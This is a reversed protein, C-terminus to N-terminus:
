TKSCVGEAPSPQDASGPGSGVSEEPSEEAEGEVGGECRDEGCCDDDTRCPEGEQNCCFQTDLQEVLWDRPKGQLVVNQTFRVAACHDFPNDFEGASFAGRQIAHVANGHFLSGGSDGDCGIQDKPGPAAILPQNECRQRDDIDHAVVSGSQQRTPEVKEKAGYAHLTYTTGVETKTSDALVHVAFGTANPRLSAKVLAIDDCPGRGFIRRDTIRQWREHKTPDPIPDSTLNKPKDAGHGITLACIQEVTKPEGSSPVRPWRKLVTGTVSPVYYLQASGARAGESPQIAEVYRSPGVKLLLIGSLNSADGNRIAESGAEELTEDRCCVVTILTFLAFMSSRGFRMMQDVSRESQSM